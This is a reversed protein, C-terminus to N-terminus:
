LLLAAPLASKVFHLIIYSISSHCKPSKFNPVTEFICAFHGLSSKLHEVRGKENTKM